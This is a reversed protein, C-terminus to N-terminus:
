RRPRGRAYAAADIEDGFRLVDNFLRNSHDTLLTETDAGYFKRFVQGSHADWRFMVEELEYDVFVDRDKGLASKSIGM